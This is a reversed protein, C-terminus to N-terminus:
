PSFAISGNRPMRNRSAYRPSPTKRRWECDKKSRWRQFIRPKDRFLGGSSELRGLRRSDQLRPRRLENVLHISETYLTSSPSPPPPPPHPPLPTSSSSPHLLPVIPHLSKRKKQLGGAHMQGLTDVSWYPLPAYRTPPHTCLSNSLPIALKPSPQMALQTGWSINGWSINLDRRLYQPAHAFLEFVHRIRSVPVDIEGEFIPAIGNRFGFVRRLKFYSRLPGEPGFVCFVLVGFAGARNASIICSEEM